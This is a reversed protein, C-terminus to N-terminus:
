SSIIKSILKEFKKAMSRKQVFGGSPDREFLIPFYALAFYLQFLGKLKFYSGDLSKIDQYAQWFDDTLARGELELAYEFGALVFRQDSFKHDEIDIYGSFQWSEKDMKAMAQLGDLQSFVFEEPDSWTALKLSIFNNIQSINKNIFDIDTLVAKALRSELSICFAQSWALKYPHDQSVWGDFSRTVQHLKALATGAIKELNHNKSLDGHTLFERISCGELCSMVQYYFPIEKSPVGYDFLTFTQLNREKFLKFAAPFNTLRTAHVRYDVLEEGIVMEEQAPTLKVVLTQGLSTEVRYVFGSHGSTIDVINVPSFGKKKILYNVERQHRNKM